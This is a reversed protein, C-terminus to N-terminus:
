LDNGDVIERTNRRESIAILATHLFGVISIVVLISVIEGTLNLYYNGNLIIYNTPFLIVMFILSILLFIGFGAVKRSYNIESIFFIGDSVLFGAGVSIGISLASLIGYLSPYVTSAYALAVAVLIVPVSIFLFIRAQRKGIRYM